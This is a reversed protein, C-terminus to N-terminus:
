TREVTGINVNIEETLKIRSKLVYVWQLPYKEVTKRMKVNRDKFKKYFYIM